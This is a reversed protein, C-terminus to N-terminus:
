RAGTRHSAAYGDLTITQPASAQTRMAKRFFGKAVGVDRKASWAPFDVTQGTGDWRGIYYVWKSRIKM